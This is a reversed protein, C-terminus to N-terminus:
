ARSQEGVSNRAKNCPSVCKKRQAAKRDEKQHERFMNIAWWVSRTRRTELDETLATRFASCGDRLPEYYKLPVPEDDCRDE